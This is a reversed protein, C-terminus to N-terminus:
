TKTSFTDEEEEEEAEGLDSKIKRSAPLTGLPVNGRLQGGRM